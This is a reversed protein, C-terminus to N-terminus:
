RRRQRVSIAWRRGWTMRDMSRQPAGGSGRRGGVRRDRDLRVAAWRDPSGGMVPSVDRGDIVWIGLWGLCLRQRDGVSALRVLDDELPADRGPM